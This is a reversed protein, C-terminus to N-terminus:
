AADIQQSDRAPDPSKQLGHRFLGHCKQPHTPSGAQIRGRGEKAKKSLLTSRQLNHKQPSQQSIKHALPRDDGAFIQQSSCAMRQHMSNVLWLRWRDADIGSALASAQQQLTPVVGRQARQVELLRPLQHVILQKVDQDLGQGLADLQVGNQVATVRAGDKVEGVAVAWVLIAAHAERGRCAWGGRQWRFNRVANCRDSM